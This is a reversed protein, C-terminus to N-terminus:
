SQHEKQLNQESRRRTADDEITGRADVFTRGRQRLHFRMAATRPIKRIDFDRVAQSLLMTCNGTAPTPQGLFRLAARLAPLPNGADISLAAEHKSLKREDADLALPLHAYAPSAFGLLRQLLIQRPTSDMLDTGRVVETIGQAADDVVVALHYSAFGQARWVVFDGVERHLDQTFAGHIEDEFCIAAADVRVRWTPARSSPPVVCEDPHIGGLAVLDSRSCWCPYARGGDQLRILAAEYDATRASQYLIPEDSALGFVQLTRLISDAAGPVERDHDVDEMRVVWRAGTARARLWSGLATVLSGFHLHGTPSPAFRGRTIM